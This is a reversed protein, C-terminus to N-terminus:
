KTFEKGVDQMLQTRQDPTCVKDVFAYVTKMHDSLTKINTSREELEILKELLGPKAKLFQIKDKQDMRIQSKEMTRIDEFTLAIQEKLAMYPDEASALFSVRDETSHDGGLMARLFTKQSDTYPCDKRDFLDTNAVYLLRLVRFPTLLGDDVAPYTIQEAM